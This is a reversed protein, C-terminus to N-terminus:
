FSDFSIHIQYKSYYPETNRFLYAILRRYLLAGFLVNIVIITMSVLAPLQKLLQQYLSASLVALENDDEEIPSLRFPDSLFRDCNTPMLHFLVSMLVTMWDVFLFPFIMFKTLLFFLTKNDYRRKKYIRFVKAKIRGQGWQDIAFHTELDFMFCCYIYICSHKWAISGLQFVM